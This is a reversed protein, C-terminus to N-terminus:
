VYRRAPVDKFTLYCGNMFEVLSWGTQKLGAKFANHATHLGCSGIELLVANEPSGNKLALKLNRLFKLNVNPGDMSVQVMRSLTLGKLDDKFAKLIDVATTHELFASGLYRSAVQSKAADWCRIVVDMQEKQAVKNLSEDFCVTFFEADAIDSVLSKKFYPALGYVIVYALKTRQMQLSAAVENEPFMVSFLKVAEAGSSFPIHNQVCFLAWVIETRTVQERLLFSSIGRGSKATPRAEPPTRVESEIAQSSQALDMPPPLSPVTNQSSVSATGSLFCFINPCM